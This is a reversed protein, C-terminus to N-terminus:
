PCIATALFPENSQILTWKSDCGSKCGKAQPPTTPPDQDPIGWCMGGSIASGADACVAVANQCGYTGPGPINNPCHGNVCAKGSAGCGDNMNPQVSQGHRAAVQQNWYTIGNCGCRLAITYDSEQPMNRCLGSKCDLSDCYEKQSCDNSQGNGDISCPKLLTGGETSGGELMSVGSGDSGAGADSSAGDAGVAGDAGNTGGESGNGGGPGADNSIEFSGLVGTCGGALAFALLAFATRFSLRM